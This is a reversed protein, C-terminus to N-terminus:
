AVTVLRELSGPLGITRDVSVIWRRIKKARPGRVEVLRGRGRREFVRGRNVVCYASRRNRRTLM